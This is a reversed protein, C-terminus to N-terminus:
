KGNKGRRKETMKKILADTGEITDIVRVDAGHDRMRQIIKVQLKRPTEGPKKLEVFIVQGNGILIRDPVGRRSPSTFKYFLIDNKECERKMYNEIDNEIRSKAM